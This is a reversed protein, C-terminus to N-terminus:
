PSHTWITLLYGGYWASLLACAAVVAWAVYVNRRALFVAPPLFLPFDPLLFRGEAHFYTPGIFLALAISLWAFALVPLARRRMRTFTLVLAFVLSFGLIYVPAKYGLQLPHTTALVIQHWVGILSPSSDWGREEMYSFGDWRGLAHGVWALYALAGLPAMATAIWPAPAWRRERGPRLLTALACVGVSLAAAVGTPHTLGAFFATVGAAIWRERLLYLVTLAAFATYLAEPYAMSEVIATPAAGWLAALLVGTRRDYLHEGIGCMAIAAVIGAALSLLLAAPVVGIVAGVVAILFPYLPFFVIDTNVLSGDPRYTLATDYGHRAVKLYFAGDWKTLLSATHAPHAAMAVLVILGVARVACYAIVEPAHGRLRSRLQPWARARDRAFRTARSGPAAGLRGADAGDETQSLPEVAAIRGM